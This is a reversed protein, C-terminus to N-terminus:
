QQINIQVSIILDRIWILTTVYMILDSHRQFQFYKSINKCVSAGGYHVHAANHRAHWKWCFLRLGTGVTAFHKDIGFGKQLVEALALVLFIATVDTSHFELKGAPEFRVHFVVFRLSLMSTHHCWVNHM